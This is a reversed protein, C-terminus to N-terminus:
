RVDDHEGQQQACVGGHCTDAAVAAARKRQGVRAEVSEGAATKARAKVRAKSATEATVREARRQFRAVQKGIVEKNRPRMNVGRTKCVQGTQRDRWHVGPVNTLQFSTIQRQEEEYEYAAARADPITGNLM